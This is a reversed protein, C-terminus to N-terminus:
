ARRRRRLWGLVALGGGILGLSGPEPVQITLADASEPGSFLILGLVAGNPPLGNELGGALRLGVPVGNAPDEIGLSRETGALPPPTTEYSTVVIEGPAGNPNTVSIRDSITTGDAEFVVYSGVDASNFTFGLLDITLVEDVGPTEAINFVIPPGYSNFTDFTTANAAAGSLLLAALGLTAPLAKSM